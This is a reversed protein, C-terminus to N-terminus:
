SPNPRVGLVRSIVWELGRFFRIQELVPNVYNTMACFYNDKAGRHHRWHHDNSQLFGIRQLSVILPGNKQPSRHSWYHIETPLVASMLTFSVTFVNVAQFAWFIVALLLATLFSPWNREIFGCRTFDTPDAHHVAAPEAFAPGLLPWHRQCYRDQFWHLVGSMFDTFLWAAAINASIWLAELAFANSAM